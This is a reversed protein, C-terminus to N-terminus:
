ERLQGESSLPAEKDCDKLIIEFAQRLLENTDASEVFEWVVKLKPKQHNKNKAM